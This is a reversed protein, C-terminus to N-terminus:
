PQGSYASPPAQSVYFGLNAYTVGGAQALQGDAIAIADGYERNASNAAEAGYFVSALPLLTIALLGLAVVVEILSYGAEEPRPARDLRVEQSMTVACIRARLSTM